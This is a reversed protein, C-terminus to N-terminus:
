ESHSAVSMIYKYTYPNKKQKHRECSFFIKLIVPEMKLQVWYLLLVVLSGSQFNEFIKGLGLKMAWLVPKNVPM